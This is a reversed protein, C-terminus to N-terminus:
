AGSRAGPVFRSRGALREDYASHLRLAREECRVRIALIVANLLTFGLATWWALHVLPLAMGEVVVAVYNPHRLYRYPGDAVAPMGPVVLVRTNWRRGLAAIAWYRLAMAAGVAALAPWGVLPRWPRDLLTAELPAALLLGAHLAVMWPYHAAGYEVGGRELAWRRHRRTLVLEVLREAAVLAVLGWYAALSPSLTASM